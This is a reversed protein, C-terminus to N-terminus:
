YDPEGPRHLQISGHAQSRHCAGKTTQGEEEQAKRHAVKKEYEAKALADRAQARAEIEARSKALQAKREQRRAIDAPISLGEEVPTSDAKENEMLEEVELELEDVADLIFHSLHDCAVWDRLYPPLLPSTDHDITVFRPGLCLDVDNGRVMKLCVM